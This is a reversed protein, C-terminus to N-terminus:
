NNKRFNNKDVPSAAASDFRFITEGDKMLDLRDRAITEVYAPDNKLLEVVRTREDVIQKEHALDARLQEVRANQDRQLKLEPLFACVILTVIAFAILAMMLRNLSHWVGRERRQQFDGYDNM